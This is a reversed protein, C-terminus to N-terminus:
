LSDGSADQQLVLIESGTASYLAIQRNDLRGFTKASSLASVINNETEMDPCAMRTMAVPPISIALRGEDNIELNGKILNCGMNGGVINEKTNFIIFPTTEVTEPIPLGYVSVVNWRGQLEELTMPYFRKVLSVVTQSSSDCLSIGNKGDKKYSRVESLAAIVKIETDMDPCAMLTSGIHEFRISGPKAQRDLSAMIKNCGSNGYIKGAHADFGIFPRQGGDPIPLPQGNVNVITWEGEIDSLTATKKM